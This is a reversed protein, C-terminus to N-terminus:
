IAWATLSWATMSVFPRGKLKKSWQGSRRGYRRPLATPHVAWPATAARDRVLIAYQRGGQKKM